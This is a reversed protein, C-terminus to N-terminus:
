RCVTSILVAVKKRDEKINNALFFEEMQKIHSTCQVNSSDFLRSAGAISRAILCGNYHVAIITRLLSQGFIEDFDKNSHM